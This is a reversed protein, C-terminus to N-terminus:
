QEIQDLKKRIFNGGDIGGPVGDMREDANGGPGYERRAREGMEIGADADRRQQQTAADCEAGVASFGGRTEAGIEGGFREGVYDQAQDLVGDCKSAGEEDCKM